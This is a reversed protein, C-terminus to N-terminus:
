LPFEVLSSYVTGRSTPSPDPQSLFLHFSRVEFEGFDPPAEVPLTGAFKAELAAQIPVADAPSAIRALTLHPTFRRTEAEVGLKACAQDTRSALAALEAGGNVRAYFSRPHRIDPFFGTGRIAIRFPPTAARVAHLASVLPELREEAWAGIFKTTIHFNAAPNWRLRAVPKLERVLEELQSNIEAPISIGAFLRLTKTAPSNM